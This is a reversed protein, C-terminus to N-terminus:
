GKTTSEPSRKVASDPRRGGKQRRNPSALSRGKLQVTRGGERRKDDIRAQWRVPRSSGAAAASAAASAAAAVAASAAQQQGSNSNGAGAAAAQQQRSRSSNGAGAAAADESDEDDKGDEDVYHRSKSIFDAFCRQCKVTTTM